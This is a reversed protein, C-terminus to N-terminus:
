EADTLDPTGTGFVPHLIRAGPEIGLEECRGARVEVVGRVTTGISIQRESQPVTNRAIALVRGDSSIFLMDLAGPTDKMWMSATLPQGFDFLMGADDGLVDRGMLGAEITEPTDAIEVTFVHTTDDTEIGLSSTDQAFATMALFASALIWAFTLRRM